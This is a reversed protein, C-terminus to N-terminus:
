HDEIEGGKVAQLITNVFIDIEEDTTFGSPSVRVCGDPATGIYEHIWPACHLGARVIIGAAEFLLYAVDDPDLGIINFSVITSNEKGNRGPYLKIGPVAHLADRIKNCCYEKKQRLQHIGNEIIYNIGAQMSIIGSINQTGAEYYMPMEEPQYLYDSRVGTGGTKLPHPAISSSIYAGGVGALGLLAKHGTFVVADAGMQPIDLPYNGISQSADVVVPINAPHKKIIQSFVSIDNLAGTVNSCHNLFVAGVKNSLKNLFDDMCIQGSEDCAIKEVRLVGDRELTKLPRIVSNHNGADVLVVTDKLPLGSILLNLSETAGSSFVIREPTQVNLFQALTQRLCTQPNISELFGHRAHDVPPNQLSDNLLRLLQPAKPFSTAANNLYIRKM